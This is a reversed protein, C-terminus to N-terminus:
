VGFLTHYYYTIDYTGGQDVVIIAPAQFVFALVDRSKVRRMAKTDIEITHSLADTAVAAEAGSNVYLAGQWIWSGEDDGASALEPAIGGAFADETVVILGCLIMASEGVATADLVVGVRGRVRTITGPAAFTAGTTGFVAPNDSLDNSVLVDGTNAWQYDTRRGQRGRAM